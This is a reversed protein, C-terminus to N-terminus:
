DVAVVAVVAVVVVDVDLATCIGVDVVRCSAIRGLVGFQMAWGRAISFMAAIDAVVRWSRSERVIWTTTSLSRSGMDLDCFGATTSTDDNLSFSSGGPDRPGAAMSIRM